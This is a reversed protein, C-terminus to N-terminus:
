KAYGSHESSSAATEAEKRKTVVKALIASVAAAKEEVIKANKEAELWTLRRRCEKSRQRWM